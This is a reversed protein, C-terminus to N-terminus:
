TPRCFIPPRMARREIEERFQKTKRVEERMPAWAQHWPCAVGCFVRDPSEEHWAIHGIPEGARGLRPPPTMESLAIEEFLSGM